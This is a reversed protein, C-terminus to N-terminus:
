LVPRQNTVSLARHFLPSGVADRASDVTRLESSILPPCSLFLADGTNGRMPDDMDQTLGVIVSFLCQRDPGWVSIMAASIRPIFM